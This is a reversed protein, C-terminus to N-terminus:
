RHSKSNIKLSQKDKQYKKYYNHNLIIKIKYKNSNKRNKFRKKKKSNNWGNLKDSNNWVM